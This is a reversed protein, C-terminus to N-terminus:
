RRSYLRLQNVKEEGIRDKVHLVGGTIKMYTLREGQSDRVIKFYKRGWFEDPYVPELTYEELSRMFEEVGTNKLASGFYCPFLDRSAIRSRIADKSVQGTEM